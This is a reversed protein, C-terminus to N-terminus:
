CSKERGYTTRLAYWRPADKNVMLRREDTTEVQTSQTSVGTQSNEAVNNGQVEPLVDPILGICPPAEGGRSIANEVTM